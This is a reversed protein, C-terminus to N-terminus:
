HKLSWVYLTKPSLRCCFFYCFCSEAECNRRATDGFCLFLIYPRLNKRWKKMKKITLAEFLTQKLHGIGILFYSEDRHDKKFSLVVRRTWIKENHKCWIQKAIRHKTNIARPYGYHNNFKHLCVFFWVSKNQLLLNCIWLLFIWKSKVATIEDLHSSESSIQRFLFLERLGYPSHWCTEAIYATVTAVLKIRTFVM